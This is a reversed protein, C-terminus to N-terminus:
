AQMRAPRLLKTRVKILKSFVPEFDEKKGDHFPYVGLSCQMTLVHSCQAGLTLVARKCSSAMQDGLAAEHWRPTGNEERVRRGIELKQIQEEPRSSSRTEVGRDALM